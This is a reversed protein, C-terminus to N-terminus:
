GRRRRTGSRRVTVDVGWRIGPSEYRTELSSGHGSGLSGFQDGRFPAEIRGARRVGEHHVGHHQRGELGFRLVLGALGHLETRSCQTSQVLDREPGVVPLGRIGGRTRPQGVQAPGDRATGLQGTVSGVWGRPVEVVVVRNEGSGAGVRSVAERSEGRTSQSLDDAGDQRERSTWLDEGASRRVAQDGGDPPLCEHGQGHVRCGDRVAAGFRLGSRRGHRERNVGGGAGGLGGSCAGGDAERALIAPASFLWRHRAALLKRLQSDIEHSEALMSAPRKRYELLPRNAPLGRFGRGTAALFFDWDEYGQRLDEAFRLGSAFVRTRILSGAESHNALIHMLPTPQGEGAYHGDQGFFDFPPYFWDGEPRGRLLAAFARGAGPALRNDADLLFIAEPPGAPDAMAVDIGANRAASLGANPQPVVTLRGPGLAAAWSALAARTEAFRCGDNVVVIRAVEGRDMLAAASAIADDVLVPHGMVPIVVTVRPPAAEGDPGGAAAAARM